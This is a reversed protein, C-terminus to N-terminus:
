LNIKSKLNNLLALILDAFERVAGNGGNNSLVLDVNKKVEAVADNPCASLGAFKLAEIDNIDDGIYAINESKLKFNDALTTLDKLKDKSNLIVKTIRLKKARAEAIKTNENKIIATKIGAQHLLTIGMGDRTSFRKLEEGKESYYMASDTLTGDVDMAFLKIKQAKQKLVKENMSCNNTKSRFLSMQQLNCIFRTQNM